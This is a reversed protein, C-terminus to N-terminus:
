SKGASYAARPVISIQGSTERLATDIDKLHKIGYSIRAEALIDKEDLGAERLAEPILAGARILYQSEGDVLREFKPYRYKLNKWVWDSALFTFIFGLAEPLHRFDILGYQLSSAILVASALDFTTARNLSVRRDAFRFIAVLLVYGIVASAIFKMRKLGYHKLVDRFTAVGGVMKQKLILGM